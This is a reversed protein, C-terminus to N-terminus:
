ACLILRGNCPTPFGLRAPGACSTAQCVCVCTRIRAAPNIPRPRIRHLRPPSIHFYVTVATPCEATQHPLCGPGSRGRQLRWRNSMPPPPPPPPPPPLRFLSPEVASVARFLGSLGHVAAPVISTNLRHGKAMAWRSTCQAVWQVLLIENPFPPPVCARVTCATSRQSLTPFVCARPAHPPPPLLISAIVSSAWIIVHHLLRKTHSASPKAQWRPTFCLICYTSYKVLSAFMESILHDVGWSRKNRQGQSEGHRRRATAHLLGWLTHNLYIM